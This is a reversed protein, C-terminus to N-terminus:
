CLYSPKGYAQSGGQSTNCCEYHLLFKAHYCCLIAKENIRLPHEVLSALTLLTPIAGPHRAVRSGANVSVVIKVLWVM